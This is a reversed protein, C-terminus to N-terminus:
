GNGFDTSMQAPRIVNYPRNGLIGVDAASIPCTPFSGRCNADMRTIRPYNDRQTLFPQCNTAAIIAELAGDSYTMDFEPIPQTLLPIVEDPKLFGVRVRRASIFRDTWAAGLEAFTHAGTFMLVVRPRHQLTHRLTDLVRAGWGADLTEQLREYEDLCLLARMKAPMAREVGDLWEDFAAFLERELTAAALPEVVVRRRRLGDSLARSLYHLLTAASGTVAANQCDV